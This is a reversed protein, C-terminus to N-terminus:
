EKSDRLRRRGRLRAADAAHVAALEVPAYTKHLHNAHEISNAMKASITMPEAEGAIAEVTGSRRMDMLRRKDGPFVIERVDAFDDSLTDERYPRRSRNHFLLTDPLLEADGFTELLYAKVLRETRKSITGLAARGTKTRGDETRDFIIRGAILKSHRAALTRVDVPSFQTDWAIAMICALGHYGNRWADKVLRVTEGDFWRANRPRPARNRIGTSPDDGHAIKMGRMVTWLARWTKLTKHAVGLGHKAELASRWESMMQYTITDPAVDGWMERIRFWAPWWVKNRSSLALRKWEDTRIFAQFAAGVSRPPYHRVAEAEDRSLRSVDFPPPQDGRLTAAVRTNWTHAISWAAPGEPGCRVDQFGLKKLKRSPRWYGRGHIVVYYPIKVNGVSGGCEDM